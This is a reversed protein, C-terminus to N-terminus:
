GIEKKAMKRRLTWIIQILIFLVLFGML